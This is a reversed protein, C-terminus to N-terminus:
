EGGGFDTRIEIQNIDFKDLDIVCAGDAFIESYRGDNYRIGCAMEAIMLTVSSQWVIMLRGTSWAKYLHRARRAVIPDINLEHAAQKFSKTAIVNFFCERGLELARILQAKHTAGHLLSERQAFMSAMDLEELLEKSPRAIPGRSNPRMGSM